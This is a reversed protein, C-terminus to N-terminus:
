SSASPRKVDWFLALALVNHLHEATHQLSKTLIWRATIPTEMAPTWMTERPEDWALTACEELLEIQQERLSRFQDLLDDLSPRQAFAEDELEDTSDAESAAPGGLWHGITPIVSYEDYFVLHLAHREVSWEGLSQRPPQTSHRHAPVQHAAWVFDEASTRLRQQFWDIPVIEPASM